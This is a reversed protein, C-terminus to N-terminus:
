HLSAACTMPLRLLPAEVTASMNSAFPHPVMGFPFIWACLLVVHPRCHCSFALNYGDLRSASGHPGGCMMMPIDPMFGDCSRSHYAAGYWLCQKACDFSPAWWSLRLIKEGEFESEGEIQLFYVGETLVSGQSIFSLDERKKLCLCVLQLVSWTISHDVSVPSPSRSSGTYGWTELEGNSDRRNV